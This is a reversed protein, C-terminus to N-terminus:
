SYSDVIIRAQALLKERLAEPELVKVQHGHQLLIGFWGREEEPVTFGMVLNQEREELLRANPLAEELLVRYEAPCLLKIDMYERRDGHGALLLEADGHVTIFPEALTIIDRIRSLRFLRYDEKDRCYAFLYWAYWKYTLLLPEVCRCSTSNRANTYQFQIVQKERIVREIVAIAKGTGIGEQLVEM